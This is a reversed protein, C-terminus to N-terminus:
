PTCGGRVGRDLHSCPWRGQDVYVANVDVDVIRRRHVQLISYVLHNVGM